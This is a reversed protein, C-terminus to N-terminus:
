SPVEVAGDAVDVLDAPFAVGPPPNTGHPLRLTVILEGGTREVPGQFWPSGMALRPLVEGEGLPSFDFNEGDITLVDGAKIVTLTADDGPCRASPSFKIRM